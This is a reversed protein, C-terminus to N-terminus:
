SNEIITKAIQMYGNDGIRSAGCEKTLALLKLYEQEARGM